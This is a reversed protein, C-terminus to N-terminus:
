ADISPLPPGRSRPRQPTVSKAVQAERAELGLLLRPSELELPGLSVLTHSFAALLACAACAEEHAECIARATESRADLFCTTCPSSDRAEWAHREHSLEAVLPALLVFVLAVGAVLRRSRPALFSIKMSM